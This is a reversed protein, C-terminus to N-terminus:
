FVGALFTEVPSVKDGTAGSAALVAPSLTLV